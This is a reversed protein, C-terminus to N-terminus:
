QEQDSEAVALDWNPYSGLVLVGPFDVSAAALQPVHTGATPYSPSCFPCCDEGQTRKM